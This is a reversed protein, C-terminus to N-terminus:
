PLKQLDIITAPWPDVAFGDNLAIHWLSYGVSSTDAMAAM